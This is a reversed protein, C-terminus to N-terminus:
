LYYPVTTVYDDLLLGHTNATDWGQLFLNATNYKKSVNNTNMLNVSLQSNLKMRDQSPTIINFFSATKGHKM